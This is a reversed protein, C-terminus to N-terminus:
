LIIKCVWESFLPSTAWTQHWGPIETIDGLYKIEYVKTFYALLMNWNQKSLDIVSLLQRHFCKLIVSLPFSVCYTSLYIKRVSHRFLRVILLSKHWIRTEISAQIIYHASTYVSLSLSSYKVSETLFFLRYCMIIVTLSVMSTTILM